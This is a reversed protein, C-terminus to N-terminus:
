LPTQYGPSLNDSLVSSARHSLAYRHATCGIQHCSPGQMSIISVFVAMDYQYVQSLWDYGGEESLINQNVALSKKQYLQLKSCFDAIGYQDIQSFWDFM